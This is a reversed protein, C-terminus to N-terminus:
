RRRRNAHFRHDREALRVVEAREGPTLPSSLYEITGMLLRADTGVFDVAPNAVEVLQAHEHMLMVATHVRIRHGQRTLWAELDHAVQGVQQPWSRGGGDVAWESEYVNGRTSIKQFWWQDGVAHLLVRRRKVEIAWVGDPGILVSDTEGRRNRYGRLMVWEDPLASLSWALLDEGYAGSGHQQMRGYAQQASYDAWAVQQAAQGVHHQAAEEAETPVALIRKWFPKARKAAEWETQAQAYYSQWAAQNAATEDLQQESLRLQEGIHDSLVKVRMTVLGRRVAVADLMVSGGVVPAAFAGSELLEFM